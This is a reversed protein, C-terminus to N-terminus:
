MIKKAIERGYEHAMNLAGGIGVKKLMLAGGTMDMKLVHKMTDFIREPAEGSWGFAGFS